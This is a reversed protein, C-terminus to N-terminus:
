KQVETPTLLSYLEELSRENKIMTCIACISNLSSEGSEAIERASEEIKTVINQSFRIENGRKSRLYQSIASETLDLRRAAERQSLGHVDVLARAFERRIAPLLYWVIIECPAKM